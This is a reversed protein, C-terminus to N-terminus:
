IINYTLLTINYIFYCVTSPKFFPTKFHWLAKRLRFSPTFEHESVLVLVAEHLEEHLGRHHRVQRLRIEADEHDAGQQFM